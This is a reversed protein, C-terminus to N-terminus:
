EDLNTTQLDIVNNDVSTTLPTPDLPLDKHNRKRGVIVIVIILAVLFLVCGVSIGIIAGTGLKSGSSGSDETPTPPQTPQPRETPSPPITTPDYTPPIPMHGCDMCMYCDYGRDADQGNKFYVSQEKSRDFCMPVNFRVDGKSISYIHAVQGNTSATQYTFCCEVFVTSSSESSDNLFISPSESHTNHFTCNNITSVAGGDLYLASGNVTSTCSDFSCKLLTFNNNVQAYVAGGNQSGTRSNSFKCDYVVANQTTIRLSGGEKSGFCQDFRTNQITFFGNTILVPASTFSSDAITVTSTANLGNVTFYNNSINRSNANTIEIVHATFSVPFNLIITDFNTSTCAIYSATIDVGETKIECQDFVVREASKIIVEDDLKAKLFTVNSGTCLFGDSGATKDTCTNNKFSISTILVDTSSVQLSLTSKDHYSFTVNHIETYSEILLSPGATKVGNADFVCNTVYNKRLKGTTFHICHGSHYTNVNRMFVCDEIHVEKPLYPNGCIASTDIYTNGIFECNSVRVSDILEGIVTISAGINEIFRLGEVVLNYIESISIYFVPCDNNLLGHNYMMTCNSLTIENTRIFGCSGKNAGNISNNTFITNTITVKQIPTLYTDDAAYIAGGKYQKATNNFFECNNVNLEVLNPELYLAGGKEAFNSRFNCSELFLSCGDTENFFIAGGSYFVDFLFQYCTSLCREFDCRLLNASVVKTFSIAGGNWTSSCNVFQCDIIETYQIQNFCIVGGNNYSSCYLGNNCHTFKCNTINVSSAPSEVLYVGGDVGENTINPKVEDHIVTDKTIVTHSGKLSQTRTTQFRALIIPLIFLM